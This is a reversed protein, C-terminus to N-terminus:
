VVREDVNPDFGVQLLAGLGPFRDPVDLSYTAAVM